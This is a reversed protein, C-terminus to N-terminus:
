PPEVLQLSDDLICPVHGGGHACLGVLRQRRCVEVKPEGRLLAVIQLELRAEHGRQLRVGGVGLKCPGRPARRAPVFALLIRASEGMWSPVCRERGPEGLAGAGGLAQGAGCDLLVVLARVLALAVPQAVELRRVGVLGEKRLRERRPPPRCAVVADRRRDQLGISVLHGQTGARPAFVQRAGDLVCSLRACLQEQVCAEDLLVRRVAVNKVQEASLLRIAPLQRALEGVLGGAVLEHEACVALLAKHPRRAGAKLHGPADHIVVVGPAAGESARQAGLGLLLVLLLAKCVAHVAVQQPGIALEVPKPGRGDAAGHAIVHRVLEECAPHGAQLGRKGAGKVRVGVDVRQARGVVRVQAREARVQSQAPLALPRELRGQPARVGLGRHGGLGVGVQFVGRSALTGALDDDVHAGRVRALRVIGERREPAGCAGDVQARQAQKGGLHRVRRVLEAAGAREHGPLLAEEHLPGPM